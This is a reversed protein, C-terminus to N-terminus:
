EPGRQTRGHYSHATLKSLNVSDGEPTGDVLSGGEVNSLVTDYLPFFSSCIRERDLYHIGLKLSCYYDPALFLEFFDICVMLLNLPLQRVATGLITYLAHVGPSPVRLM